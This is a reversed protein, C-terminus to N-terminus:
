LRVTLRSLVFNVVFRAYEEVTIGRRKYKWRKLYWDQLVAKILAAVLEVDACHLDGNLVGENLIDLFIQETALEDEMARRKERGSLSSAEMYAFYFWPRLVETLYLHTEIAVELREIPDSWADTQGLIVEKTYAVGQCLIMSRLEEKGPFYSYLAGMSLGSKRSLDRLSMTEFGKERNLSFVAELIRMMNKVAVEEKKVSIKGKNERILDRCINELTPAVRKKFEQFPLM